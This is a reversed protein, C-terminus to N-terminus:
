FCTIYKCEDTTTIIMTTTFNGCVPEGVQQMDAANTAVVCYKYATSSNLGSVTIVHTPYGSTVEPYTINGTTDTMNIDMIVDVNNTTLNSLVCQLDPSSCPMKSILTASNEAIDSENVSLIPNVGLHNNLVCLQNYVCVFVYHM